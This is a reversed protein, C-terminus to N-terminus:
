VLAEYTGICAVRFIRVALVSYNYFFFLSLM